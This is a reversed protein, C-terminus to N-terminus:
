ENLIEQTLWGNLLDDYNLSEVRLKGNFRDIFDNQWTRGNSFRIRNQSVDRGFLRVKLEPATICPPVYACCFRIEEIPSKRITTSM